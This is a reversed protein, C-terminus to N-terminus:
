SITVKHKLKEKLIKKSRHYQVKCNSESLGLMTSIESFKYEEIAKLTFVIRAGDPLKNIANMIKNIDENSDIDIITEENPENSIEENLHEFFLKQKRLLSISQNVVIQKLWAGFTSKGKFSKLKAFAKVFAEQVTDEAEFSNGTIRYAVNYMQKAYQQFLAFEAKKDGKICREIIRQQLTETHEM